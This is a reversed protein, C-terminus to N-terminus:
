EPREAPSAVRLLKAPLCSGNCLRLGRGSRCHRTTLETREPLQQVLTAHFCLKSGSWCYLLVLLQASKRTQGDCCSLRSCAALFGDDKADTGKQVYGLNATTIQCFALQAIVTLLGLHGLHLGQRTMSKMVPRSPPMAKCAGTPSPLASSGLGASAVSGAALLCCTRASDLLTEAAWSAAASGGFYKPMSRRVHTFIIESPKM